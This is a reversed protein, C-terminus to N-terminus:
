IYIYIYLSIYLYLSISISIGVGGGRPPPPPSGRPVQIPCTSIISITAVDEPFDHAKRKWHSSITAAGTTAMGSVEGSSTHYCNDDNSIDNYTHIYIYIYICLRDREREIYTHIYTHIYIYIYIYIHGRPTSLLSARCIDRMAPGKTYM